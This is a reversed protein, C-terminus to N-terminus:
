DNTLSEVIPFMYFGASPRKEALVGDQERLVSSIGVSVPHSPPLASSHHISVFSPTANARCGTMRLRLEDDKNERSRSAPVSSTIIVPSSGQSSWSPPFFRFDWQKAQHLQELPIKGMTKRKSCVSTYPRGSAQNVGQWDDTPPPLSCVEEWCDFFFEVHATIKPAATQRKRRKNGGGGM